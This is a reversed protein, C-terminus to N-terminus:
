PPTRMTKERAFAQAYLVQNGQGALLAVGGAPRMGQDVMKNAKREFEEPDADRVVMYRPPLPDREPPPPKPKPKM